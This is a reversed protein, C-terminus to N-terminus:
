RLLYDFMLMQKCRLDLFLWMTLSNIAMWRNNDDEDHQLLLVLQENSSRSQRSQPFARGGDCGGLFRLFHQAALLWLADMDDDCSEARTELQKTALILIHLMVAIFLLSLHSHLRRGHLTRSALRLSWFPWFILFIVEFLWIWSEFRQLIGFAMENAAVKQWFHM